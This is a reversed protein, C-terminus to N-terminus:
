PPQGDAYKEAVLLGRKCANNLNMLECCANAFFRLKQPNTRDVPMRFFCDVPSPIKRWEEGTM